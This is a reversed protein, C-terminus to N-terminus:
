RSPSRCRNRAAASLAAVSRGPPPAAARRCWSWAIWPGPPCAAARSAPGSNRPAMSLASGSSPSRWRRSRARRSLIARRVTSPPSSSSSRSRIALSIRAEVSPTSTAIQSSRWPRRVWRAVATGLRRDARRAQEVQRAAEADQAPGQIGRTRCAGLRVLWIPTSRSRGSRRARRAPSTSRGEPTLEGLDGGGDRSGVSRPAGQQQDRLRPGIGPGGVHVQRGDEGVGDPRDHADRAALLLDAVQEVAGLRQAAHGAVDAASQVEIADEGAQDVMGHDQELAVAGRHEHAPRVAGVHGLHAAVERGAVEVRDARDRHPRQRGGRDGCPSRQERHVVAVVRAPGVHAGRDHLLTVVRQARGREHVPGLQEARQVDVVVRRM